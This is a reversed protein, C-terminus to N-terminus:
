IIKITFKNPDNQQTFCHSKRDKFFHEQKDNVNVKKIVWFLNFNM